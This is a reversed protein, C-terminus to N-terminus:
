KNLFAKSDIHFGRPSNKEWFSYDNRNMLRFAYSFSIVVPFIYIGVKQFIFRRQLMNHTDVHLQTLLYDLFLSSLTPLAM